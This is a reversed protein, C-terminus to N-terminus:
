VVYTKQPYRELHDRLYAATKELGERLSVQPQWNLMKSAKQPDCLLLGVESKEPRHRESESM